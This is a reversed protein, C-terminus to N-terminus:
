CLVLVVTLNAAALLFGGLCHSHVVQGDNEGEVELSEHEYPVKMLECLERITNHEWQFQLQEVSHTGGMGSVHVIGGGRNWM